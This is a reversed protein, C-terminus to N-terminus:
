GWYEYNRTELADSTLKNARVFSADDWRSQLAFLQDAQHTRAAASSHASVRGAGVQPLSNGQKETM